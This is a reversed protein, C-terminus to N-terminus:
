KIYGRIADLVELKRCRIKGNQITIIDDLKVQCHLLVVYPKDGVGEIFYNLSGVHLGNSCSLNSEEVEKACVMGREPYYFKRDHFSSLDENVFKYCNVYGNHPYLNTQASLSKILNEKLSLNCKVHGYSVAQEESVIAKYLRADNTVRGFDKVVSSIITARYEIVARDTIISTGAILASDKILSNGSCTSRDRIVARDVVVSDGELISSDWIESYGRMTASDKVRSNGYAKSNDGIWCAGEHSLNDESEVFGGFEGAKVRGPIEVLSRIRRLGSWYQDTLEYKKM